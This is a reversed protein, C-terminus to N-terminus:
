RVSRPSAFDNLRLLPRSVRNSWCPLADSIKWAAFGQDVPPRRLQDTLSPALRRAFPQGLHSVFQAHLQGPKAALKRSPLRWM